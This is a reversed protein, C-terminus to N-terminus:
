SRARWKVYTTAKRAPAPQWCIRHCDPCYSSGPQVEQGCFVYPKNGIPYRCSTDDLEALTLRLPANPEPVLPPSVNSPLRAGRPRGTISLVPGPNSKPTKGRNRRQYQGGGKHKAIEIGAATLAQRTLGNRRIAGSVAGKSAGLAEGIETMTKGALWMEKLAAFRDETWSPNPRATM